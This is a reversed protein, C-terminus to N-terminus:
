RVGFIIIKSSEGLEEPTCNVIDTLTISVHEFCDRAFTACIRASREIYPINIRFLLRVAIIFILLWDYPLGRQTMAYKILDERQQDTMDVKGVDYKRYNSLPALSIRRGGQAEIVQGDGVYIAVHSYKGHEAWNIVDSIIDEGRVFILDGVQLM